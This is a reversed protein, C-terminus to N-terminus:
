YLCTLIFRETNHIISCKPHTSLSGVPEGGPEDVVSIEEDESEESSSSCSAEELIRVLESKDDPTYDSPISLLSDEDVMMRPTQSRSVSDSMVSLSTHSCSHSHSVLISHTHTHQTFQAQTLLQMTSELPLTCLLM